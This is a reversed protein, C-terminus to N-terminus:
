LCKLLLFTLSDAILQQLTLLPQGIKPGHTGAHRFRCYAGFGLESTHLVGRSTRLTYKTPVFHVMLFRLSFLYFSCDCLPLRLLIANSWWVGALYRPLGRLSNKFTTEQDSQLNSTWQSQVVPLQYVVFVNSCVDGGCYWLSGCGRLTVM